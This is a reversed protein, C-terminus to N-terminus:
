EGFTCLRYQSHSLVFLRGFPWKGDLFMGPLTKTPRGQEAPLCWIVAACKWPITTGMRRSWICIATYRIWDFDGFLFSWIVKLLTHTDSKSHLKLIKV